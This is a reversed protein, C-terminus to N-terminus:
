PSTQERSFYAVPVFLGLVALALRFYTMPCNVVNPWIWAVYKERADTDDLMYRKRGLFNEDFAAWLLAGTSVIIFLLNLVALWESVRSKTQVTFLFILGWAILVICSMLMSTLHCVIFREARTQTDNNGNGSRKLIHTAFTPLPGSALIVVLQVIVHETAKDLTKIIGVVIGAYILVWLAILALTPKWQQTRCYAIVKAM